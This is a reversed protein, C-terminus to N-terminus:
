GMDHPPWRLLTVRIQVLSIHAVWTLGVLSPFPSQIQGLDGLGTGGGERPRDEWWGGVEFVKMKGEGVMGLEGEWWGGKAPALKNACIKSTAM